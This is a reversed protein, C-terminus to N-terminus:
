RKKNKKGYKQKYLRFGEEIVEGTSLTVGPPFGLEKKFQAIEQLFVKPVRISTTDKREEGCTECYSANKPRGTIPKKCKRCKKLKHVIEKRTNEKGTDYLGV